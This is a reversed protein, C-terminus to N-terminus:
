PVWRHEANHQVLPSRTVTVGVPRRRYASLRETLEARREARESRRSAHLYLGVVTLLFLTTIALLVLYVRAEADDPV